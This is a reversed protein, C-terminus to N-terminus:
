NLRLAAKSVTGDTGAAATRHNIKGNPTKHALLPRPRTHTLTGGAACLNM